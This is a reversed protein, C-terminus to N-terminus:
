YKWREELMTAEGDKVAIEASPEEPKGDAFLEYIVTGDNQVSEIVRVPTFMTDPAAARANDPVDAWNIDRQVEVVEFAGDDSQLMDLEVESGDARTGEVDFFIQGDREKREVEAITMGAIKAEAADRIGQPIDEAAIESSVTEPGDPLTADEEADDASPQCASVAALAVLAVMPRLAQNSFSM